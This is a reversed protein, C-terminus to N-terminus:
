EGGAATAEASAGDSPRPVYHLVRHLARALSDSPVLSTEGVLWRLEVEEGARSFVYSVEFADASDEARVCRWQVGREGNPRQFTFYDIAAGHRAEESLKAAIAELLREDDVIRRLARFLNRQARPPDEPLSTPRLDPLSEVVVPDGSAMIQAALLDLSRFERTDLNVEWQAVALEGGQRWQFYARYLNVQEPVIREPVITWGVLDDPPVPPDLSDFYVLLASGLRAGHGFRHNTLATVVEAERNLFRQLDESIGSEVVSAFINAPVVGNSGPPQMGDPDLQVLWAPGLEVVGDRFVFQVEYVSGLQRFARWGVREIRDWHLNPFAARLLDTEVVQRVTREVGPAEASPVAARRFVRETARDELDAWRDIPVNTNEPVWVAARADDLEATSEVDSREAIAVLLLVLLSIVVGLATLAAMLKSRQSMSIQQAIAGGVRGVSPAHPEL